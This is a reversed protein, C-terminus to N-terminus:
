TSATAPGRARAHKLHRIQDTGVPLWRVRLGDALAMSIVLLLTDFHQLYVRPFNNSGYGLRALQAALRAPSRRYKEATIRHASMTRRILGHNIILFHTRPFREGTTPNTNFFHPHDPAALFEVANFEPRELLRSDSIRCDPDLIAFDDSARHLLGTLATGHKVPFRPLTRLRIVSEALFTPAIRDAGSSGYGNLVVTLRCRTALDAANRRALEEIGPVVIMCVELSSERARDTGSSWLVPMPGGLALRRSVPTLLRRAVKFAFTSEPSAANM